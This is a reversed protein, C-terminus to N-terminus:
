PVVERHRRRFDDLVPRIHPSLNEPLNGLTFFGAALGENPDVRIEGRYDRCLYIISVAYVEDGSPYRGYLEPGSYVGFLELTHCTLGVEELTERAATEEMREGLEAAGGPLGWTHNDVRHHLLLRGEGDLLLVAAGVLFLPRSGVLARLEAMYNNIPM